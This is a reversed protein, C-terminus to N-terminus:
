STYHFLAFFLKELRDNQQTGGTIQTSEYLYIISAGWYDLNIKVSSLPHEVIIHCVGTIHTKVGQQHM